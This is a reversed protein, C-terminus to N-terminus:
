GSVDLLDVGYVGYGEVWLVAGEAGGAAVACEVEPVLVGFVAEFAVWLDAAGDGGRSEALVSIDESVGNTIIPTFPVRSVGCPVRNLQFQMGYQPILTLRPWPTLLPLVEIQTM